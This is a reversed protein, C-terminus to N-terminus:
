SNRLEVVTVGVGGEYGNGLRYDTVFSVQKLYDSVAKRLAGTGVGHIITVQNVHMLLCDDLYKGLLSMAEDVRLGVLNLSLEQSGKNLSLNEKKKTTKHAKPTSPSVQHSKTRIRVNNIDIELDQKRISTIIGVQGSSNIKVYDGLKPVYNSKGPEIEKTLQKIQQKVVLAEHPKLERNKLENLLQDATDLANEVLENAVAKAENLVTERMIDINNQAINLERLKIEYDVQIQKLEQRQTEILLREQNLKNILLDTDSTDQEVYRYANELVSPEINYKSAIELAYSNGSAGEIIRYTPSYDAQNLEMAAIRINERSYAYEKLRSFHTTAVTFAGVATLHDLIAMALSAGAKPDTGSGLEDLIVLSDRDALYLIESLTKLHSSFTSLSNEISQQDGIDIFVKSFRGIRAENCLIPLGAYTALVFLGIVKLSVTKGGTNPGSILLVPRNSDLTYSNSVVKDTPILPHRAQNLSIVNEDVLESVIGEYLKMFRAKTFLMDLETLTELNVSLQEQFPYVLDTLEKLVKYVNDDYLAQLEATENNLKVLFGPELYVAQGSASEGHLYGKISHKYSKKVLLCLRDHRQTVIEDILMEQHEQIFRKLQAQKENERERIKDALAKLVPINMENLQGSPLLHEKLIQNTKRQLSLTDFLEALHKKLSEIQKQYLLVKNIVDWQNSIMSLEQSTLVISKSLRALCDRIDSLGDLPLDGYRILCDFAEQTGALSHRIWIPNLSPQLEDFRQKTLNFSTLSSIKGIYKELEVSHYNLFM